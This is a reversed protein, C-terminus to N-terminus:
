MEIGGENKGLEQQVIAMYGSIGTRDNMEAANVRTGRIQYRRARLMAATAMPTHSEIVFTMYATSANTQAPSVSILAETHHSMQINDKVM